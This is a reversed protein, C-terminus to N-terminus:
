LLLLVSCSFIVQYGILMITTLVIRAGNNSLATTVRLNRGKKILIEQLIYLLYEDKLDTV